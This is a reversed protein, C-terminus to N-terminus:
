MGRVRGRFPSSTCWPRLSSRKCAPLDACLERPLRSRAPPHASRFVPMVCSFLAIGVNLMGFSGANISIGMATLADRTKDGRTASYSGCYAMAVYLCQDVSYRRSALEGVELRMRGLIGQMCATNPTRELGAPCHCGPQVHVKKDIQGHAAPLRVALQRFADKAAKRIRDPTILRHMSGHLGLVFSPLAHPERIRGKALRKKARSKSSCMSMSMITLCCTLFREFHAASLSHPWTLAPM